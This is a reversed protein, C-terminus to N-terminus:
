VGRTDQLDEERYGPTGEREPMLPAPERVQPSPLPHRHLGDGPRHIVMHIIMHEHRMRMDDM